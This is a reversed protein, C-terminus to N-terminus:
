AEWQETLHFGRQRAKELFRTATVAQELRHVGPPVEGRSSNAM